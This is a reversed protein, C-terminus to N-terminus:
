GVRINPGKSGSRRFHNRLRSTGAEWVGCVSKEPNQKRPYKALRTTSSAGDDEMGGAMDGRRLREELGAAEKGGGEPVSHAGM